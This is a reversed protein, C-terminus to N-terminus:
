RRHRIAAIQVQRRLSHESRERVPNNITVDGMVPAHNVTNNVVAPVGRTMARADPPVISMVQPAAAASLGGYFQAPDIRGENYDTLFQKGYPQQVKSRRVMFEGPTAFIKAKDEVGQYVGAILGGSMHSPTYGESTDKSARSFLSKAWNWTGKLFDGVHGALGGFFDLIPQILNNYVVSPLTSIADPLTKTFFNPLTNTFFNTIPDTVHTKFWKPAAEFWHPITDTFFKPIDVTIFDHFPVAVKQTYWHKVSDFWHPITKTFFGPISQIFEYFPVAFNQVLFNFGQKALRPLTQTFFAFVLKPLDVYWFTLWALFGHVLAKGGALAYRPLDKTFFAGVRGVGRFFADFGQGALHPLTKTFFAAFRGLQRFFLDFAKGPLAPLTKTFFDGIASATRGFFGPITKTFFDAIKTGGKSISDFIQKGFDTKSFLAGLPGLLTAAVGGAGGKADGGTFLDKAGSFLSKAGGAVSSGVDGLFGGVGKAAGSLKGGVFNRLNKDKFLSYAGGALGGIAGGIVTGVGPIISGISAGIGAGNAVAGLGRQLSSKDSDNKVFKNLLYDGGLQAAGGLVLGGIGGVLGKALGGGLRGVTGLKSGGKALEEIETAVSAGGKGRGLLRSLLGGKGPTSRGTEEFEGDITMGRRSTAREPLGISGDDNKLVDTFRKGLNKLRQRASTKGQGTGPEEGFTYPDFAHKQAPEVPLLRGKADRQRPAKAVTYDDDLGVPNLDYASLPRYASQQAAARPLLRGKADRAQPERPVTYADNLGPVTAQKGRRTAVKPTLDDSSYPLGNYDASARDVPLLRGKADRQRPPKDVTQVPPQADLDYPNFSDYQGAPTYTPKATTSAQVDELDGLVQGPIVPSLASGLTGFVNKLLGGLAGAKGKYRSVRTQRPNAAYVGAAREVRGFPTSGRGLRNDRAEALAARRQAQGKASNPDVGEAVTSAGVPGFGTESGPKEPVDIGRSRRSTTSDKESSTSGGGGGGKPNTGGKGSGSGSEDGGSGGSGGFGGRTNTAIQQAYKEIRYLTPLVGGTNTPDVQVPKTVDAITGLVRGLRSPKSGGTSATTGGAGTKTRNRVNRRAASTGSDRGLLSDKTTDIRNQIAGKVRGTEGPERDVISGVISGIGKTAAITNKILGSIGTIKALLAAGFVLAITTGVLKIAGGLFPFAKTLNDVFTGIKGIATGVIELVTAFASISSLGGADFFKNIGEFAGGIGKALKSVLGSESLKGFIDALAPLWQTSIAKLTSSAENLNRPDSFLKGFFTGAASLFGVVDHLLPRVDRLWKQFGSNPDEAQKGLKKFTDSAKLLGNNFWTTFDDQGGGATNLAKFFEGIGIAFNKVIPALEQMRRRTNLLFEGIELRGKDSTAFAQFSDAMGKIGDVVFRTFPRAVEIVSRFGDAAALLAGGLQGIIYGSEKGQESFFNKWDSNTFLDLAKKAFIGIAVSAPTLFDGLSKLIDAFKGTEGSIPGFINESLNERLTKYPGKILDLIAETVKRTKPPLKDLAAALTAAATGGADKEYTAKSEALKAKDLDIYAQKLNNVADQENRKAAIVEDSGQVGKGIAENADQTTRKADTAQDAQDNLAAQYNHAAIKRDLNSKTPDALARRYDQLASEAGLSAGEQDFKLRKLATRYDEIKRTADKVADSYAVQSRPLDQQARTVNLQAEQQQLQADRLALAATTAANTTATAEKQAASYDSFISKVPGMVIALAGFASVAAGIIGPLAAVAGVLAGLNSALGLAAAGVAGLIAALPGMAAIVAIILSQFSILHRGAGSLSSTLKNGVNTFNNVLDGFLGGGSGGQRPRNLEEVFGRVRESLSTIRRSVDEAGRPVSRFFRSFSNELNRVSGNALKDADSGMRGFYKSVSDRAGDVFKNGNGIRDFFKGFGAEANAVGKGITNSFKSMGNEVSTFFKSFASADPAAVIPATVRKNAANAFRGMAREFGEVFKTTKAEQGDLATNMRRTFGEIAKNGSVKRALDDFATEVRGLTTTARRTNEELSNPDKSVANVAKQGAQPASILSRGAAVATDSFLAGVSGLVTQSRRRRQEEKEAARERSETVSLLRQELIEGQTSMKNLDSRVRAISVEAQRRREAIDLSTKDAANSARSQAADAISTAAETRQQAVETKGKATESVATVRDVYTDSRIKEADTNTAEYGAKRTATTDVRAQSEKARNIANQAATDSDRRRKAIADNAARSRGAQANTDKRITDNSSAQDKRIRDAAANTNDRNRKATGDASARSRAAQANSDKRITDASSAQDKRISDAAAKTNDRVRAANSDAVKSNSQQRKATNNTQTTAQEDALKKRAKSREAISDLEDQRAKKRIAEAKAEEVTQKKVEATQEKIAKTQDKIQDTASKGSAARQAAKHAEENEGLIKNQEGLVKNVADTNKAREKNIEKESDKLAALKARAAALSEALGAQDVQIRLIVHRVVDNFEGAM